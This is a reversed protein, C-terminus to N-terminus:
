VKVRGPIKAAPVTQNPLLYRALEDGSPVVLDEPVHQGNTLFSIPMGNRLVDSVIAGKPETEDM